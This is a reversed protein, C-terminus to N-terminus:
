KRCVSVSGYGGGWLRIPDEGYFRGVDPGYYRARYYYKAFLADYERATYKFRDGNTPNTESLIKGFSDYTLQDLVTGDTRVIQRVSGLYDGLYWDVEGNAYRAFLQDIVPGYLYRTTM